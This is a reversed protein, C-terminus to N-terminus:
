EHEYISRKYNYFDKMVKPLKYDFNNDGVYRYIDKGYSRKGISSRVVSNLMECCSSCKRIESSSIDLRFNLKGESFHHTCWRVGKEAEHLLLISYALLGFFQPYLEDLFAELREVRQTLYHQMKEKDLDQLHVTESLTELKMNKLLDDCGLRVKDLNFLDALALIKMVNEKTKPQVELFEVCPNFILEKVQYEDSLMLLHEVNKWQGAEAAQDGGSEDENGREEVNADFITTNCAM